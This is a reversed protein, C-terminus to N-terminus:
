PAKSSLCNPLYLSSHLLVQSSQVCLEAHMTQPVGKLNLLTMAPTTEALSKQEQVIVDGVDALGQWSGLVAFIAACMLPTMGEKPGKKKM